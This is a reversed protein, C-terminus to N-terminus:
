HLKLAEKPLLLIAELQDIIENGSGGHLDWLTFASPFAPFQHRLDSLISMSRGNRIEEVDSIVLITQDAGRRRKAM